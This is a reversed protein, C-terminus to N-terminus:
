RGLWDHLLYALLQRAGIRFLQEASTTLLRRRRRRRVQRCADQLDSPALRDDRPM